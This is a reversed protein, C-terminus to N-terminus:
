QCVFTPGTYVAYSRPFVQTFEASVNDCRQATGAATICRSPCLALEHEWEVVENEVTQNAVLKYASGTANTTYVFGFNNPLSEFLPDQPVKSMFTPFFDGSAGMIFNDGANSCAYSGAQVNGSWVPDGSNCREPYRGYQAKYLQLALQLEKLTAARYEDRAEQRAENYSTAAVTALLAVISVVVIIEVLSFGATRLANKM